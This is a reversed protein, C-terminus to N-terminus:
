PLIKGPVLGHKKSYFKRLIEKTNYANEKIVDWDPRFMFPTM